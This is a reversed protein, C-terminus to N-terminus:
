HRNGGGGRRPVPRLQRQLYRLNSARVAPPAAVVLPPFHNITGTITITRFSSLHVEPTGERVVTGAFTISREGANNTDSVTIGQCDAGYCIGSLGNVNGTNFLFSRIGSGVMNVQANDFNADVWYYGLEGDEQQFTGVKPGNFPDPPAPCMAMPATGDSYVAWVSDSGTCDPPSQGASENVQANFSTTIHAFTTTSLLSDATIAALPANDLTVRRYKQGFDGEVVSGLTIGSCSAGQCAFDLYQYYNEDFHYYLFYQVADGSVAMDFHYFYNQDSASFITWKGSPNGSGNICGANVSRDPRILVMRGDTCYLPPITVGSPAGKLAGTLSLTATGTLQAGDFAIPQYGDPQTAGLSVGQCAAGTCGTTGGGALLYSVSQVLPGRANVVLSDNAFTVFTYVTLTSDGADPQASKYAPCVRAGPSGGSVAVEELHCLLSANAIQAQLDTPAMGRAALTDNLAVIEDYMPDGAVPTFPTTVFSASGTTIHVGYQSELLQTVRGQAAEVAAPDIAQILSDGSPQLNYFYTYPDQGTLDAVVLTSLSTVNVLGTDFAMAYTFNYSGTIGQILFVPTLESVRAVYHGLSDSKVTRPIGQAAKVVVGSNSAGPTGDSIVGHIEPQPGYPRTGLVPRDECASLSLALLGLCVPAFNNRM